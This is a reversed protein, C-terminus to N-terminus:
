PSVHLRHRSHWAPVPRALPRTPAHRDPHFLFKVKDASKALILPRQQQAGANVQLEQPRHNIHAVHIRCARHQQHANDQSLLHRQNCVYHCCPWTARSGQSGAQPIHLKPTYSLRTSYQTRSAPTPPEFGRVGVMKSPKWGLWRRHSGCQDDEVTEGEGSNFTRTAGPQAPHTDHARCRPPAYEKDHHAVAQTVVWAHRTPPNGRHGSKSLCSAPQDSRTCSADSM